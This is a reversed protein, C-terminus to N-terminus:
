YGIGRIDLVHESATVYDEEPGREMADSMLARALVDNYMSRARDLFGVKGTVRQAMDVALRTGLCRAFLPTFRAPDTVRRTYKVYLRSKADCYVTNGALEYKFRRNNDRYPQDSAWRLSLCDAPLDFASAWGFPPPAENPAQVALAKAFAWPYEQLLEDRVYGFERAMYRGIVTDDDLSSLQVDDLIQSAM